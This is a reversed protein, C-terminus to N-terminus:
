FYFLQNCDNHVGHYPLSTSSWAVRDAFIHLMSLGLGITSASGSFRSLVAPWCLEGEHLRGPWNIIGLLGVVPPSCVGVPAQQM